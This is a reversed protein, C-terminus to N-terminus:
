SVRWFFADDFGQSTERAHTHQFAFSLVTMRGYSYVLKLTSTRYETAPTHCCEERIRAIWTEWLRALQDDTKSAEM